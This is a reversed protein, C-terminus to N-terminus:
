GGGAARHAQTGSLHRGLVGSETAVTSAELRSHVGLKVFVNQVHTRVTAETIALSRAIQRTCEGETIRLLVEQERSTLLIRLPDGDGAGPLHFARVAAALLAGDFVREGHCVRPLIRVIDTIHCDRPIFGAAGEEVAAATLAPDPSSSLMVVKVDPHRWSIMRLVDLGGCGSFCAALLCIDPHHEALQAFLEPPSTALAAVGFGRRSLAAALSEIVM